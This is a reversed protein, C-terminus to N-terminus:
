GAGQRNRDLVERNVLFAPVSGELAQAV